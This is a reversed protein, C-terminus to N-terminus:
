SEKRHLTIGCIRCKCSEQPIGSDLFVKLEYGCSCHYSFTRLQTEKM